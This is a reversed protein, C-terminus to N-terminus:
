ASGRSPSTAPGSGMSRLWYTFRMLMKVALFFPVQYPRLKFLSHELILMYLRTGVDVDRFVDEPTLADKAGNPKLPPDVVGALLVEHMGERVRKQVAPIALDLKQGRTTDTFVQPMRDVGFDVLPSLRRITFRQGM